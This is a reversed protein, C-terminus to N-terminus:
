LGWGGREKPVFLAERQWLELAPLDLIREAAQATDKDVSLAFDETQQTALVRLLHVSRQPICERLLCSAAQVAPLGAPGHASLEAIKQTLTRTVDARTRLFDTVFRPSGVPIPSPAHAALEVYTGPYGALIFGDHTANDWMAAARQGEPRQEDATWVTGKADNAMLRLRDM